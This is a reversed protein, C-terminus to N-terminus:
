CYFLKLIENRIIFGIKLNNMDLMMCRAGGPPQQKKYINDFYYMNIYKKYKKLIKMIDSVNVNFKKNLDIFIPILYKKPIYRKLNYNWKKLLYLNIIDLVIDNTYIYFDGNLRLHFDIIKNDITEVNVCGTYNFLKEEILVKLSMDLERNPLSEHYDFMGGYTAKSQLITFYVIKGKLIFLDICLHEGVLFDLWFFNNKDKKSIIYSTYEQLNNIKKYGVSMGLLNIIPKIVIPFKTPIQDLFNYNINQLKAWELKNYVWRYENYIKYVEIDNTPINIPSVLNLKKKLNMYKKM